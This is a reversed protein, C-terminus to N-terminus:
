VAIIAKSTVGGKRMRPTITVIDNLCEVVVGGVIGEQLLLDGSVEERGGGNLLTMAIQGGRSKKGDSMLRSRGHIPVECHVHDIILDIRHGGRRHAEADGAGATVVM